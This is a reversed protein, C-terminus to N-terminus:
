AARKVAVQIRLTPAFRLSNTVLCSKEAKELLKKARETDAANPIELRVSLDIATFRTTGEAREVTGSGECVLNTWALKSAKAIARFTLIFCDCGAAVLLTEPSWLNGPGDFEAPPASTLPNLGPSDIAVPSQESAAATATYQHPFPQM